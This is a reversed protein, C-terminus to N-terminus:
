YPLRRAAEHFPLGAFIPLKTLRAAADADGLRARTRWLLASVLPTQRLATPLAQELTDLATIRDELEARLLAMRLWPDLGQLPGSADLAGLAEDPRALAQLARAEHLRLWAVTRAQYARRRPSTAHHLARRVTELAMEPEGGRLLADALDGGCRPREARPAHELNSRRLSLAHDHQGRLTSLLARPGDLHLRAEGSWDHGRACALTAEAREDDFMDIAAVVRTGISRALQLEMRPSASRELHHLWQAREDAAARHNASALLVTFVEAREDDTLDPRDVLMLARRGAEVWEGRRDHLRLAHLHEEPDDLASPVLQEVALALTSVPLAAPHAVGGQAPVLMRARPRAETRLQLKLDLLRVARVDGREDLAGTAVLTDPVPLARACSVAALATALGFSDGAWGLHDFTIAFGQDSGLLARAADLARKSQEYADAELEPLCDPGECPQARVCVFRGADESVTPFAVEGVGSGRPTRALGARGATVSRAPIWAADPVRSVLAHLLRRAQHRVRPSGEDFARSALDWAREPRGAALAEGVREHLSM